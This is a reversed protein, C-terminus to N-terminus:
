KGFYKKSLYEQKPREEKKNPFSIKRDRFVSYSSDQALLPDLEVRLTKPHIKLLNLDFLTHLDARLLIGNSVISLVEGSESYPVIHAAELIEEFQCGTVACTNKYAKLLSNRFKKQGRRAVILRYLKERKGIELDDESSNALGRMANNPIDAEGLNFLSLEISEFFHNILAENDEQTFNENLYFEKPNLFCNNYKTHQSGGDVDIGLKRGKKVRNVTDLGQSNSKSEGCGILAGRGSKDFCTAVYIGKSVKQNKNLICVHWVVPYNGAGQSIEVRLNKNEYKHLIQKEITSKFETLLRKVGKAESSTNTFILPKGSEDCLSKRLKCIENFLAYMM